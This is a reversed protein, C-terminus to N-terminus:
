LGIIGSVQKQDDRKVFEILRAPVESVSITRPAAEAGGPAIREYMRIVPTDKSGLHQTAALDDIRFQDLQNVTSDDKLVWSESSGSNVLAVFHVAKQNLILGELRYQHHDDIHLISKTEV